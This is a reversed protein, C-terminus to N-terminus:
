DEDSHEAEYWGDLDASDHLQTSVGAVRSDALGSGPQGLHGNLSGRVLPGGVGPGGTLGWGVPGVPMGEEHVRSGDSSGPFSADEKPVWEPTGAQGSGMSGALQASGHQQEPQLGASSARSANLFDRVCGQGDRSYLGDSQPANVPAGFPFRQPMLDSGHNHLGRDPEHGWESLVHSDEGAFPAEDEEHASVASRSGSSPSYSREVAFNHQDVESGHGLGWHNQLPHQLPHQQSPHMAEDLHHAASSVRHQLHLGAASGPQSIGSEDGRASSGLSRPMEHRSQFGSSSQLRSLGLGASSHRSGDFRGSAHMPSVPASSHGSYSAGAGPLSGPGARSSTSSSHRSSHAAHSAQSGQWTAAGPVAQAYGAAFGQQVKKGPQTVHAAADGVPQQASGGFPVPATHNLVAMESSPSAERGSSSRARMGLLAAASGVSWGGAQTSQDAPQSPAYFHGDHLHLAARGNMRGPLSAQMHKVDGTLWCVSSDPAWLGGVQNGGSCSSLKKPSVSDDCKRQVSCPCNATDTGQTGLFADLLIAASESPLYM